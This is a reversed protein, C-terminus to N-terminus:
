SGLTGESSPTTTGPDAVPPEEEAVTDSSPQDEPNAAPEDSSSESEQVSAADEVAAADASPEPDPNAEATGDIAINGYVEDFVPPPPVYVCTGGALDISQANTAPVEQGDAVVLSGDSARPAEARLDADLSAFFWSTPTDTVLTLVATDGPAIYLTGGNPASWREAGRVVTGTPVGQGLVVALGLSVSPNLFTLQAANCGITSTSVVQLPAGYEITSKPRSSLAEHNQNQAINSRIEGFDQAKIWGIAARSTPDVVDLYTDGSSALAINGGHMAVEGSALTAVEDNGGPTQVVSFPTRSRRTQRLEGSKTSDSTLVARDTPSLKTSSVWGLDTNPAAAERVRVWFEGDRVKASTAQVLSGAAVQGAAEDGQSTTYVTQTGSVEFLRGIDRASAFALTAPAPAQTTAVTTTTTPVVATTQPAQTTSEVVLSTPPTTQEEGGTCATALLAVVAAQAIRQLKM